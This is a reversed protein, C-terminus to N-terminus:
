YIKKDKLATKIMEPSVTITVSDSPKKGYYIYKIGMGSEKLYKTFLIQAADNSSGLEELISDELDSGEAKAKKLLAMTIVSEDTRVKYCLYNGDIFVDTLTLGDGWDEPLGSKMEKATEIMFDKATYDNEDPMSIEESTLLIEGKRGSLNGKVLFKLNLGSKIFLEAFDKNNGAALSFLNSKNQNMNAIYQDLDMQEEDITAHIIYDNGKIEMREMTFFAATVPLQANTQILGQKLAKIAENTNQACASLCCAVVGLIFLIRRMLTLIFHM